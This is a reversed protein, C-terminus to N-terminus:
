LDLHFRFFLFEVWQFHCISLLFSIVRKASHADKNAAYCMEIFMIRQWRCRCKIMNKKKRKKRINVWKSTSASASENAELEHIRDCFKCLKNEFTSLLQACFAAIHEHEYFLWVVIVNMTWAHLLFIHTHTHQNLNLGWSVCVCILIGIVRMMMMVRCCCCCYRCCWKM